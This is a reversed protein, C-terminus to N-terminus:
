PGLYKADRDELDENVNQFKPSDLTIKKKINIAHHVLSRYLWGKLKHFRKSMPILHAPRILTKFVTETKGGSQPKYHLTHILPQLLLSVHVNRSQVCTMLMLVPLSRDYKM